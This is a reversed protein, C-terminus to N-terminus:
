PKDETVTLQALAKRLTEHNPGTYGLIVAARAEQSVWRLKDLVVERKVSLAELREVERQLRGSMGVLAVNQATKSEVEARAEDREREVEAVKARWSDAITKDYGARIRLHMAHETEECRACEVVPEALAADIRSTAEPVQHPPSMMRNEARVLAERAEALLARLKENETM